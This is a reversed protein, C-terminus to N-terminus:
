SERCINQYSGSWQLMCKKTPTVTYTPVGSCDATTYSREIVADLGCQLTVSGGDKGKRCVDVPTRTTKCDESCSYDTCTMQEVVMTGPAITTTTVPAHTKGSVQASVAYETILCENTGKRVRVFGDEGWDTGWSNKIVWYPVSGSTNYGVLLVGHNLQEGECETIIGGQYSMFAFADVGIALPGHEALWAAMVDEDSELSLHGEISAGIVLGSSMNCQPEEGTGSVYPYSEETYVNGNANNILWDYADLMLGGNCGADVTDCSVLQQESLRVLPNGALKWQGEINGVASFAWCSGCSGQDKVPTVAGDDRWDKTAPAGSVDASVAPLKAAREKAAKFHSAGNLYHKRFEGESLDFFKTVGFTAHPNRAQHVRMTELNHEFNRLRLREEELTAYVRGYARKFEEFQAAASSTVHLGYAPVSAAALVVCVAAVVAVLLKSATMPIARHARHILLSLFLFFLFLFLDM